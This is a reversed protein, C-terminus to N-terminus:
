TADNIEDEAEDIIQQMNLPTINGNDIETAAATLENHMNRVALSYEIDQRRYTRIASRVFESISGYLGSMVQSKVYEELEPTLSINTSMHKDM